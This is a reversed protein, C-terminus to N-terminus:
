QVIQRIGEPEIRVNEKGDNKVNLVFPLSEKVDEIHTILLIQKFQNSIEALAKLINGKREADQSGFIEDLAIFGTRTSGSRESLEQSIAIRLCLNALDEEGGSFREINFVEGEDEVKVNYEEDLEITAYRGKTMQRFLESAKASLIPRIRSILDIRFDYMIRELKSRSGIKMEEESILSRKGQEDGVDKKNQEIAALIQNIQGRLGVLTERKKRYNENARELAKKSTEYAQKDFSIQDVEERVSSIKMDLKSIATVLSQYRARLLPIRKAAAALRISRDNITKLRSFEAKVNSHTDKDFAMSDYEKVKSQFTHLKRELGRLARVGGKLETELKTESKLKARLSKEEEDLRRIKTEIERVKDLITKREERANTIDNRFKNIEQNFYEVIGPLHEGLSRKCTPCKGEKGLTKIKSFEAETKGKREEFGDIKAKLRNALGDLEEKQGKLIRATRLNTKLDSEASVYVALEKEIAKNQAITAHIESKIGSIQEEVHLKEKFKVYLSDLRIKEKEVKKFELVQPEIESLSSQAQEAEKLDANTTGQQEEKGQRNSVLSALHKEKKNYAKFKQEHFAFTKKQQKLEKSLNSSQESTSKIENSKSTKKEELEVGQSLLTDLDKLTSKLSNIKTTSERVDARIQTIVGDVKDIRLLRMITKKREGPTLNSLANLEKQKAFVSTFFAVYDMGTRKAIYESVERVGSVEPRSNGNLFLRAMASSNSGRLEREIRVTEDGFLMEVEVKCDEHSGASTRKIFEKKTRAADNGYLCWGIAEILTSKGTGNNGVIGILGDPFEVLEDKYRRYNQLHLSKIIM